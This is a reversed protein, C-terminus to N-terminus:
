AARKELALAAADDQAAAADEEKAWVPLVRLPPRRAVLLWWVVRRANPKPPPLPRSLTEGRSPLSLLLSVPTPRALSARDGGIGSSPASAVLSSAVAPPALM